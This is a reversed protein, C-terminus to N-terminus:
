AFNNKGMETKKTEGNIKSKTIQSILREEITPLEAIESISLTYSPRYSIKNMEKLDADKTAITLVLVGGEKLSAAPADVSESSKGSSLLVLIKAVNSSQRSGSAATFVNDKVYTLAGGTNLPRGGKHSLRRISTLIDEKKMFSNLYFNAVATNSFQIVAVRDENPGVNLRGIVKHLFDQIAAFGNRTNDSGDLLFM